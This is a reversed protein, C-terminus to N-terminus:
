DLRSCRRKVSTRWADLAFVVVDDPECSHGVAVHGPMSDESSSCVLWPMSAVVHDSIASLDPHRYLGHLRQERCEVVQDSAATLV